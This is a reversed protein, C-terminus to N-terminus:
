PLQLSGVRKRQHADNQQARKRSPSKHCIMVLRRFVFDDKRWCTGAIVPYALGSLICPPLCVSVCVPLITLFINAAMISALYRCAACMKRSFVTVFARRPHPPPVPPRNYHFDFDFYTSKAKQQTCLLNDPRPTFSAVRSVRENHFIIEYSTCPQGRRRWQRARCHAFLRRQPM